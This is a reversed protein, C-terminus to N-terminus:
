WFKFWVGDGANAGQILVDRLLKTEGQPLEIVMPLDGVQLVDPTVDGSETREGVNINGTNPTLLGGAVAKAPYLWLKNFSLKHSDSIREIANANQLLYIGSQTATKM